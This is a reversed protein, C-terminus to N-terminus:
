KRANKPTIKKKKKEKLEKEIKEKEKLEEEIKMKKTVKKLKYKVKIKLARKM